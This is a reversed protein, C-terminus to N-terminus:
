QFYGLELFKQKYYLPMLKWNKPLSAEVTASIFDYGVSKEKILCVVGRNLVAPETLAKM